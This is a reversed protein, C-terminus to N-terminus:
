PLKLLERRNKKFAKAVANVADAVAKSSVTAGSVADISGGEGAMRFPVAEALNKNSYQDLYPSPPLSAEEGSEPTGRLFDGLSVEQKRDTAQTGLGPTESHESVVVARITGDRKLGVLVRLTGGYGKETTGEAALAVLEANRTAPYFSVTRGDPLTATHVTELPNNDFDPLVTRLNDKKEKLEAEEQAAKTQNEALALVTAALACVIGLSVSLKAILKM